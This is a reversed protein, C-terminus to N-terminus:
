DDSVNSLMHGLKDRKAKLYRLNHETPEVELAERATVELGRAELGAVKLPNNTMLVVTRIGLDRLIQAAVDYDRLDAGFGLHENASVTDHGQDQLAYARLKNVLGIGRGEQDLYLLVGRKADEIKALARRLQPGCDCRRSGLADGTLCKSHLRVLV